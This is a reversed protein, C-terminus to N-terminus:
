GCTFIWEQSSLGAWVLPMLKGVSRYYAMMENIPEPVTAMAAESVQAFLLFILSWQMSTGMLVVKKVHSNGEADQVQCAPLSAM